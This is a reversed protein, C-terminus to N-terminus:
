SLVVYIVPSQEGDIYAAHPFEEQILGLDLNYNIAAALMSDIDGSIDVISPLESKDVCAEILSITSPNDIVVWGHEGEYSNTVACIVRKILKM